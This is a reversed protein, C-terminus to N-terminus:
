RPGNESVLSGPRGRGRGWFLMVAAVAAIAAFIVKLPWLPILTVDPTAYPRRAAGDETSAVAEDGRAGTAVRERAQYQREMRAQRQGYKGGIALLAALAMSSFVLLWFWPSDTVPLKPNPIESQPNPSSSDYM